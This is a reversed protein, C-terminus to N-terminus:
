PVFLMKRAAVFEGAVLRYFYVGASVRKGGSDRGDWLVIHHGAPTEQDVVSRVTHGLVNYINMRVKATEPLDYEIHTEPNFPNPHNQYLEFREPLIIAQQAFATEARAAPASSSAQIVLDPKNAGEKSTYYVVDSSNNKLGFSYIGNSLIATTVDFEVWSDVSVNGVSSLATGSIEPANNWNLGSQVWVTTTGLYNNSVSYAAGGDNGADTVYLRLKANQVAGNLGAVVFKLYIAITESNTQRMRLASASGFNGAPSSARVYADDTPLFSLTTGGGGSTVTFDNASVATGNPTTVSIKGTTAGAPVTFRIQNASVTMFSAALTTNIKVEVVGVFNSGFISGETGVPGSSPAVSTIIPPAPAAVIAFIGDSVDQPDGDVADSVRVLAQSTSTSPMTWNQSGDNPSSSVITVWSGGNDVSHELKVNAIAGQSTWTIAHSSGAQWSEGGNPSRLTLTTLPPPGDNTWTSANHSIPKPLGTGLSAMNMLYDHDTRASPRNPFNTASSNQYIYLKYGSAVLIEERWDGRIDAQISEGSGYAIALGSAIVSGGFTDLLKGNGYQYYEPGADDDWYVPYGTSSGSGRQRVEGTSGYFFFKEDYGDVNSDDPGPPNGYAGNLANQWETGEWYYGAAKMEMGPTGPNMDSLWGRHNRGWGRQPQNLSHHWIVSKQDIDIVYPGEWYNPQVYYPDADDGARVLYWELGPNSPIIDGVFSRAAQGKRANQFSTGDLYLSGNDNLLLPGQIIEDKGDGDFDVTYINTLSHQKYYSSQDFRWYEKLNKDYAITRINSGQTLVLYPNVGDLYALTAHLIGKPNALTVSKKIAGTQGNLMVLKIQGSQKVQTMVEAKGDGDMDWVTLTVIWTPDGAIDMPTLHHNFEWLLTGNDLVAYTRTEFNEVPNENIEVWVRVLFDYKGDGNLDGVGINYSLNQEVVGLRSSPLAIAQTNVAAPAAYCADSSRVSEEGVMVDLIGLPACLQLICIQICSLRVTM